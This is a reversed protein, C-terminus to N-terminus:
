WWLFAWVMIVYMPNAATTKITHANRHHAEPRRYRSSPPSHHSLMGFQRPFSCRIMTKNNNVLVIVVNARALHFVIDISDDESCIMVVLEHLRQLLYSRDKILIVETSWLPNCTGVVKGFVGEGRELLDAIVSRSGVM